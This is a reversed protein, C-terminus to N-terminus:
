DHASDAAKRGSPAADNGTSSKCHVTHSRNEHVYGVVLKCVASGDAEVTPVLHPCTDQVHCRCRAQFM